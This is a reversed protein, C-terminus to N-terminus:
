DCAKRQWSNLLTAPTKYSRSIPSLMYLRFIPLTYPLAPRAVECTDSVWNNTLSGDRKYEPCECGGSPADVPVSIGGIWRFVYSRLGAAM